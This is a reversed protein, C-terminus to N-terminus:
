MARVFADIFLLIVPYVLFYNITKGFCVPCCAGPLTVIVGCQGLDRCFSVRVCFTLGSSCRCQQCGDLSPWSSGDEYTVGDVTCSQQQQARCCGFGILHEIHFHDTIGDILTSIFNWLQTQKRTRKKKKM